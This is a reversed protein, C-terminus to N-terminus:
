KRELTNPYGLENIELMIKSLTKQIGAPNLAEIKFNISVTKDNEFNNDTKLTTGIGSRRSTKIIKEVKELSNNDIGTLDFDINFKKEM